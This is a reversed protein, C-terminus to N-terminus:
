RLNKHGGLLGVLELRVQTAAVEVLVWLMILFHFQHTALFALIPSLTLPTPFRTPCKAPFIWVFREQVFAAVQQYQVTGTSSYQESLVVVPTVRQNDNADYRL